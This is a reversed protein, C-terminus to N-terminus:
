SVPRSAGGIKNFRTEVTADRCTAPTALKDGHIIQRLLQAQQDAVYALGANRLHGARGRQDRGDVLVGGLDTVHPQRGAPRLGLRQQGVQM